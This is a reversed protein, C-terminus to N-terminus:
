IWAGRRDLDYRVSEQLVNLLVVGVIMLPVIMWVQALVVFVGFLVISPFGSGVPLDKLKPSHEIFMVTRMMASRKFFYKVFTMAVIGLVAFTSAQTAIEFVTNTDM